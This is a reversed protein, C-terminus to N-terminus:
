RLADAVDAFGKSVEDDRTWGARVGDLDLSLGGPLDVGEFSVEDLEFHRVYIKVLGEGDGNSEPLGDVALHVGRAAVTGLEISRDTLGIRGLDVQLAEVDAAIGGGDLRVQSLRLSPPLIGWHLDGIELEAGYGEALQELWNIAMRRTPPAELITRIILGFLLVFAITALVAIVTRKLHRYRM